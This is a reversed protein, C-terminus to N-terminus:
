ILNDLQNFYEIERKYTKELMRERKKKKVNFFLYIKRLSLFVYYLPPFIKCLFIVYYLINFKITQQFDRRLSIALKQAQLNRKRKIDGLAGYWLAKEINKRLNMCVKNRTENSIEKNKKVKKLIKKYGTLFDIESSKSSLSLNNIFYIACSNKSFAFPKSSVVRLLFDTDAPGGVKEDLLGFRTISQKRFLIGTWTTIDESIKILGEEPSYFEKEFSDFSIGRIKKNNDIIITQTASLFIQPYKKFMKLTTKYFDPLLLDDDSLISFYPTKIRSLGFNFIKLGGINQRHVFYQVRSDKKILDKVIKETEDNSANDYVCVKFNPYSQNLISLLARKLLNPRRYTPIITTILPNKM